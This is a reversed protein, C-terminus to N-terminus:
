KQLFPLHKVFERPIEDPLMHDLFEFAKAHDDFGAAEDIINRIMQDAWMNYNFIDWLQTMFEDSLTFDVIKVASILHISNIFLTEYKNSSAILRCFSNREQVPLQLKELYSKLKAESYVGCNRELNKTEWVYFDM